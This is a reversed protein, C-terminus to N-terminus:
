MAKSVRVRVREWLSLSCNQDKEHPTSEHHRSEVMAFVQVIGGDRQPYPCEAMGRMLGDNSCLGADCNGRLWETM